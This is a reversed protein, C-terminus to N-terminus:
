KKAVYREVIKRLMKHRVGRRAKSSPGKQIARGYESADASVKATEDRIYESVKDAFSELSNRLSTYNKFTKGDYIVNSIVVFLSYFDHKNAWRTTKSLSPFLKQIVAITESYVRRLKAEEPVSTQDEDLTEYLKDIAASSGDQPGYLIGALLESVFEIDGMRRVSSPAFLEQQILFPNDALDTALKIFPGIFKANRLEQPKLVMSFKNLRIFANRIENEDETELTRLSFDYKYFIKKEIETLEQFSKGYWKSSKSLKSLCFNNDTLEDDLGLFKLITRIRQQGDVVAYRTTGDSDVSRQIYIEPIPYNLLVSEILYCREKLTWVPRRQYPEALSLEGTTARQQFWSISQKTVDYKM